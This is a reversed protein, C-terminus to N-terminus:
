RLLPLVDDGFQELFRPQDDGPAHLILEDFGLDAYRRIGDAIEERTTRSSSAPPHATPTKTPLASWRSRTM